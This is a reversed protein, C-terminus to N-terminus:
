DLLIEIGTDHGELKHTMGAVKMNDAIISCKRQSNRLHAPIASVSSSSDTINSQSGINTESKEIEKTERYSDKMLTDLDEEWESPNDENEVEAIGLLQNPMDGVAHIQEHPYRIQAGIHGTM